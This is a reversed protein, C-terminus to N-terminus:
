VIINFYKQGGLFNIVNDPLLGDKYFKHNLGIEVILIYLTPVIIMTFTLARHKRSSPSLKNSKVFYTVQKNPGIHLEDIKSLKTSINKHIHLLLDNILPEDMDNSLIVEENSSM